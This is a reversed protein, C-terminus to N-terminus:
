ERKKQHLFEFVKNINAVRTEETKAHIVSEILYKRSSPSLNEFVTKIEPENELLWKLDDPMKPDRSLVDREIKVHVMDGDVKGIAKCINKGVHIWHTGNGKPALSTRHKVGDFWAFVRVSRLSGFEETSNYPFDVWQSGRSAYLLTDFEWSNHKGM